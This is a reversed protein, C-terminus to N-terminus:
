TDLWIKNLYDAKDNTTCFIKINEWDARSPLVSAYLCEWIASELNTSNDGWTSIDYHTHKEIELDVVALDFQLDLWDGRKGQARFELVGYKICTKFVNSIYKEDLFSNCIFLLICNNFIKLNEIESELDFYYLERDFHKGVLKM